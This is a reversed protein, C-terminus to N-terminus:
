GCLFAALHEGPSTSPLIVDAASATKTMFIDAIVLEWIRLRKVYQLLNRMPKCRIKVWLTRRACKAMRRVTRCSMIRYGTHAPLSEVGPKLSSRANAPVVYQYGPYTDPVRGYRAAGQVNNQGCAPIGSLPKGLNRDLM